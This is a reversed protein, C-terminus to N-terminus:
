AALKYAILRAHGAKPEGEVAVNPPAFVFRQGDRLTVNCINDNTFSMTEILAKFAHNLAARARFRDENALTATTARFDVFARMADALSDGLPAVQESELKQRESQLEALKATRMGILRIKTGTTDGDLEAEIDDIGKRVAEEQLKLNAIREELDDPANEQTLRIGQFLTIAIDELERYRFRTPNCKGKTEIDTSCRFAVFSRVGRDKYRMPQGCNECCPLGSFLNNFVTGRRGGKNKPTVSSESAQQRARVWVAETIIPDYYNKIVEGAPKRRRPDGEDVLTTMPTLHGIVAPNDTVKQVTGGHWMKAKGFPKVGKANLHAAISGRGMGGKGVFMDFIDKVVAAREPNIKFVIEKDVRTADIWAPVRCTMKRSGAAQRKFNWNAEGRFSKKASEDNAMQMMGVLMYIKGPNAQLEAASYIESNSTTHISVGAAIINSFQTFATFTNERSLRDVAEIILHEGKKIRGAQILELLRRLEGGKRNKGSYASLGDDRFETDLDFGM